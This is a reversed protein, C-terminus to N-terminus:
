ADLWSNIIKLREFSLYYIYLDEMKNEQFLM